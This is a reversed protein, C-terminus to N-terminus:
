NLAPAAAIVGGAYTSIVYQRAHVGTTALLAIVAHVRIM